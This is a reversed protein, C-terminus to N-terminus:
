IGRYFRGGAKTDRVIKNAFEHSSGISHVMETMGLARCSFSAPSEWAQVKPKPSRRRQGEVVLFPGDERFTIKTKIGFKSLVSNVASQAAM